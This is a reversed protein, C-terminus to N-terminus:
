KAYRGPVLEQVAAALEPLRLAEVLRPLDRSPRTLRRCVAELVQVVRAPDLDVLNCLFEDPSQAEIGSPLDYFDKLNSTVIVQAGAKVAAAVVHRDKPDNKM